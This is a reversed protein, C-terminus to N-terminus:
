RDQERTRGAALPTLRIPVVGIFPDVGVQRSMVDLAVM